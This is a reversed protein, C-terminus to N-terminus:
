ERDSDGIKTAENKSEKKINDPVNTLTEEIDNMKDNQSKKKIEDKNKYIM